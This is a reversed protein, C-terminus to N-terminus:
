TPSFIIQFRRARGTNLPHMCQCRQNRHHAQSTVKLLNMSIQLCLKTNDTEPGFKWTMKGLLQYHDQIDKSLHWASLKLTVTFSFHWTLITLAMYILNRTNCHCGIHLNVEPSLSHFFNFVDELTLKSMIALSQMNFGKWNVCLDIDGVTLSWTVNVVM